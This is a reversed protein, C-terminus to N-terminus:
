RASCKRKRENGNEDRDICSGWGDAYYLRGNQRKHRVVNHHSQSPLLLISSFTQNFLSQRLPSFLFRSFSTWQLLFFRFRQEENEGPYSCDVAISDVTPRFSFSFAGDSPFLDSSIPGAGESRTQGAPPAFQDSPLYPQFLHAKSKSIRTIFTAFRAITRCQLRQKKDLIPISHEETEKGQSGKM